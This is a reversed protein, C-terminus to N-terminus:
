PEDDEVAMPGDQPGEPEDAPGPGDEPEDDEQQRSQAMRQAEQDVKREAQPVAVGLAQAMTALAEVVEDQNSDYCGMVKDAGGEALIGRKELLEFFQTLQAALKRPQKNVARSVLVKVFNQWTPTQSMEQILAFLATIVESEEEAQEITTMLREAAPPLGAALLATNQHAPLSQPAGALGPAPAQAAVRAENAGKAQAIVAPLNAVANNLFDWFGDSVQPPGQEVRPALRAAAEQVELQEIMMDRLSRPAQQPQARMARLEQVVADLQRQMTDDKPKPEMLKAMVAPLLPVLLPLIVDSFTDKRPEPKLADKLEKITERVLELPNVEPPGAMIPPPPPLAPQKELREIRDVLQLMIQLDPGKNGGGDSMSRMTDRLLPIMMLAMPDTKGQAQLLQLMRGMEDMSSPQQRTPPDDQAKILRNVLDRLMGTTSADQTAARHAQPDVRPVSCMLQETGKPDRYYVEYENDGYRERLRKNIFARVDGDAEIEQRNYDNILILKGDNPNRYYIRVKDWEPMIGRISRDQVLSNVAPTPAALTGSTIEAIRRDASQIIREAQGKRKAERHLKAAQARTTATTELDLVPPPAPPQLQPLPEALDEPIEDLVSSLDTMGKAM